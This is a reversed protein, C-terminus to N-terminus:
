LENTYLYMVPFTRDNVRKGGDAFDERYTGDARKATVPRTTLLLQPLMVEDCIVAPWPPFGKLKVLYHDGPQANLNTIRAKSQKRNLKKGKETAGTSKRRAAKIKDAAAEEKADTAPTADGGETAADKMEIDTEEDKKEASSAEAKETEPKAEAPETPKESSTDDLGSLTDTFSCIALATIDVRHSSLSSPSRLPHMPRSALQLPDTSASAAGDEISIYLRWLYISRPRNPLSRVALARASHRTYRSMGKSADAEANSEAEKTAEVKQQEEKAEPAETVDPATASTVDKKDTSPEPSSM